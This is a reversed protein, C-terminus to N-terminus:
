SPVYQILVEKVKAGPKKCHISRRCEIEQISYDTFEQVIVSSYSNSMLLHVDKKKLEHIKNFLNEHNDKTFGNTTYGVFSTKTIPVYPPDLYVFDGKRAEMISKTFDCSRFQVNKILDSIQLFINESPYGPTKKYHGYPVNFGNPGERFMGRFCTRNLFIFLASAEICSKDDIANFRSRCWYYFNEKSKTSEIETPQRNKDIGTCANYTTFLAKLSAHVDLPNTQINKYVQILTDNADYAFVTGCIVIDGSDQLSLVKFLVSGGGVFPEHYNQMRRPIKSVIHRMIQTKGGIWKLFPKMNRTYDVGM